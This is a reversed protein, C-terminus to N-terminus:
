LGFAGPTPPEIFDEESDRPWCAAQYNTLVLHAARNDNEKVWRVMRKLCDGTSYPGHLTPLQYHHWTMFYDKYQTM